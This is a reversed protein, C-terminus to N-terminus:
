RSIWRNVSRKFSLSTKKLCAFNDCVSPLCSVQTHLSPCPAHAIKGCWCIWQSGHTAMTKSIEACIRFRWVAACLRCHWHWLALRGDTKFKLNLNVFQQSHIKQRSTESASLMSQAITKISLARTFTFTETHTYSLTHGHALTKMKRKWKPLGHCLCFSKDTSHHYASMSVVRLLVCM